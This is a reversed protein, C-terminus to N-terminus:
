TKENDDWGKYPKPHTCEKTCGDICRHPEDTYGNGCCVHMPTYDKPSRPTRIGKKSM